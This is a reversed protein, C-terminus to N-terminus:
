PDVREPPAEFDAETMQPLQSEDPRDDEKPFQREEDRLLEFMRAGREIGEDYRFALTPVTRMELLKGLQGRLYGSAGQLARIAAAKEEPTGLASIYVKAFTFDKTVDVSTVTVMALRPDRTGRLLIESMERKIMEAVRAQRITSM